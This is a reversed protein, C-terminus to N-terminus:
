ATNIMWQLCQSCTYTIGRISNTNHLSMAFVNSWIMQYCIVFKNVLQWSKYKIVEHKAMSGLLENSMAPQINSMHWTVSVSTVHDSSAPLCLHTLKCCLSAACSNKICSYNGVPCMDVQGVIHVRDLTVTHKTNYVDDTDAFRHRSQATLGIIYILM